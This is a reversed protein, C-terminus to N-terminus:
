RLGNSGGQEYSLRYHRLSSVLILTRVFPTKSKPRSSEDATGFGSCNRSDPADDNDLGYDRQPM